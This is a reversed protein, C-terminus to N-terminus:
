IASVKPIAARLQEIADSLARKRATKEAESEVRGLGDSHIVFTSTRSQRHLPIVTFTIELSATYADEVTTARQIRLKEDALLLCSAYQALRLDTIPPGGAELDEFMTGQLASEKFRRQEITWGQAQLETQLEPVDLVSRHQSDRWLVLATSAPNQSRPAENLYNKLRQEQRAREADDDANRRSIESQYSRKVLWVKIKAYLAPTIQTVKRGNDPNIECPGAFFTFDGAEDESVWLRGGLDDFPHARELEAVSNIVLRKPAMTEAMAIDKSAMVNPLAHVVRPFSSSVLLDLAAFCVTAIWKFRLASPTLKVIGVAMLPIGMAASVLFVLAKTPQAGIHIHGLFQAACVFLLAVNIILLWTEQVADYMAPLHEKAWSAALKGAAILYWYKILIWLVSGGSILVLIVTPFSSRVGAMALLVILLGATSVMWLVRRSDQILATWYGRFRDDDM